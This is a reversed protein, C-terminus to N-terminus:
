GGTKTMKKLLAPYIFATLLAALLDAWSFNGEGNLEGQIDIFLPASVFARPIILPLKSIFIYEGSPSSKSPALTSNARAHRSNPRALTSNPRAFNSKARAFDSKARALTSKAHALNSKALALTSNARVFNSKTRALRSKARVF